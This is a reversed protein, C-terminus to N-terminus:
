HVLLSTVIAVPFFICVAIISRKRWLSLGCLGHGSTCGNSLFTGSGVLIGGLVMLWHNMKFLATPNPVNQIYNFILGTLFLGALFLLNETNLKQTTLDWTRFLIGSCGLIKGRVLFMLGAAFGLLVGGFVVQMEIIM